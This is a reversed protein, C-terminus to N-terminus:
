SQITTTRCSQLPVSSRVTGQTNYSPSTVTGPVHASQQGRTYKFTHKVAYIRNLASFYNRRWFGCHHFRLRFFELHKNQAHLFITSTGGATLFIYDCCKALEMHRSYSLHKTCCLSSRSHTSFTSSSPILSLIEYSSKSCCAIRWISRLKQLLERHSWDKWTCRLQHLKLGEKYWPNRITITNNNQSKKKNLNPNYIYEPLGRIDVFGRGVEDLVM